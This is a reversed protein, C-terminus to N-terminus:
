QTKTETEWGDYTGGFSEALHLLEIVTQDIDAQQVSQIRALVIAFRPESPTLHESEITFGLGSVADRFGTRSSESDFYAWHRVERTVSHVDGQKELLELVDRNGIRQFEEPSPFLVDRYQSWTPDSKDGVDYRYGDFEGLVRKVAAELGDKKAGYFYFERRGQTTIRGCPIAAFEQALIANLADEIRYLTPAETSESLGDPRPTRMYVWAWLLLPKSEIPASKIMEIDVFISALKGNVNCLYPRWKEAM